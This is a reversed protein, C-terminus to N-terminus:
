DESSTPEDMPEDDGNVYITVDHDLGMDPAIASFQIPEAIGDFRWAFSQDGNTSKVIFRVTEGYNVNVSRTDSDLTVVRDPMVSVDAQEGLRDGPSDAYSPVAVLAAVLVGAYAISRAAKIM